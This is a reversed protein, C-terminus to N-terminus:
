ETAIELKKKKSIELGGGAGELQFASLAKNAMTRYRIGSLAGGQCHLPLSTEHGMDDISRQHLASLLCVRHAFRSTKEM